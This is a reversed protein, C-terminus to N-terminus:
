EIILKVADAIKLSIDDLMRYRRNYLARKNTKIEQVDRQVLKLPLEYWGDPNLRGDCEGWFADYDFQIAHLWHLHITHQKRYPHIADGVGYVASLGLQRSLEQVAFVMFSKPRLGQLLKQIRHTMDSNDIKHGQICAIRSVWNGAAMEEFSFAITALTGGLQDSEFFLVLEGEKRHMDHYGLRLFGEIEDNLQWRTIEIGNSSTIAKKFAEGKSLIFRYTDVIVKIRREATWGISMYVRFPKFYLQPRHAFAWTLDPSKLVGFWKYALKPHILVAFFSRWQQKRQYKKKHGPFARSAFMWSDIAVSFFSIRM